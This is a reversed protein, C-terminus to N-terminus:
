RRAGARESAARLVASSRTWSFQALRARGADVIAQRAPEDTLLSALASGISAPEASVYRAADGYVERAVATDLLVPAVGHALAEMPTMAFGEYDSLFAFVRASRYLRDREADDVYARWDVREGVGAAGALAHPDIRPSTRNDGALVLRANPVHAAAQAFGAILDPIHRRTFLSGVFLVLSERAGADAPARPAAPVPAGPPALLIQSAPVGIWREIEAASFASITAVASARRAAARTLWRRRLGERAGFWEPHAFYSVDYIVVVFPCPCFVPATYASALLVDTSARRLARPLHWQEWLTGSTPSAAVIWSVRPGLAEALDDPPPAPVVISLRHPWAADGTWERLIERLYRGVGTPQGLLERGDVGIHLARETM